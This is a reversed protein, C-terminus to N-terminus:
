TQFNQFSLFKLITIRGGSPNKPSSATLICSHPLDGHSTWLIIWRNPHFVWRRLGQLKKCTSFGCGPINLHIMPFQTKMRFFRKSFFSCGLCSVNWADSFYYTFKCLFHWRFWGVLWGVMSKWLSKSNTEKSPTCGMMGDSRPWVIDLYLGDWLPGVFGITCRANGSIGM